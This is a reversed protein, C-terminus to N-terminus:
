LLHVNALKYLEEFSIDTLSEPFGSNLACVALKYSNNIEYQKFYCEKLQNTTKFTISKGIITFSFSNLPISLGRGDAKIYSEKLTWLEFFAERREKEDLTILYSHEEESFFRASLNLDVDHIKEVDIGVPMNDVACVVWDGSHSLNFHFNENGAIYPKGYESKSFYICNNKRGLSSAIIYRLLINSTLGRLADEFKRFRGIREQEEKSTLSLLEDFIHKEIQTNIRVTYIKM